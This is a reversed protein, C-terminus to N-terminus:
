VCLPSLWATWGLGSRCIGSSEVRAEGIKQLRYEFPHHGLGVQANPLDVEKGEAITTGQLVTGTLSSRCQTSLPPHSDDPFPEARHPLTGHVFPQWMVRRGAVFYM